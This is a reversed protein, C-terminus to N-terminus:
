CKLVDRAADCAQPDGRLIALALAKIPDTEASGLYSIGYHKECDSWGERYLGDDSVDPPNRWRFTKVAESCDHTWVVSAEYDESFVVEKIEHDIGDPDWHEVTFAAGGTKMDIVWIRSDWKLKVHDGVKLENWKKRVLHPM